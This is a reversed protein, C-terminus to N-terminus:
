DQARMDSRHYRGAGAEGETESTDAASKMARTKVAAPRRPADKAKGTAKLVFADSESAEFPEGDSLDKEAYRLAQNAILSPM